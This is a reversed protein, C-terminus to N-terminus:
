DRMNRRSFKSMVPLSTVKTSVYRKDRAPILRYKLEEGKYFIHISRDLRKHVEVKAKAFSFRTKTPLIEYKKGKYSITHDGHVQRSEKLCFITDLDMEEPISRYAPEELKPKRAFRKNHKSLFISHLYENAGELNSIGELRLESILRDQFTGWLREIRGKGQPSDAFIVNIGLEDWARRMQTAGYDGRLNVHIGKHRTTIFKSDRDVYISLPIGKKEIIKKFTDMNEEVSDEYAFQAYPVEGTADDIGGILKIKPGRGELWDHDSTDYQLMMGERPMPERWSRHKPQKKKKEYSGKKLLIGRVTERSLFIEEREELEETFHSINFGKYKGRYLSDVKDRINEPIRCPSQKGKNGHILGEMGRKRFARKLRFIQRISLNLQEAAQYAKLYGKVANKIVSYKTIEKISLQWREM